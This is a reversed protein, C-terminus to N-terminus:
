LTITVPSRGLRALRDLSFREVLEATRVHEGAASAVGLSLALADLVRNPRVGKTALETLTVAGHRKALREGDPGVVLPV